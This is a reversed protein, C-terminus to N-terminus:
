QHCSNLGSTRISGRQYAKWIWIKQETSDARELEETRGRIGGRPRHELHWRHLLAPRPFAAPPPMERERSQAGHQPHWNYQFGSAAAHQKRRGSMPGDQPPNTQAEGGAAVVMPVSLTSNPWHTQITSWPPPPPRTPRHVSAQQNHSLYSAPSRRHYPDRRREGVDVHVTERYNTRLPCMAIGYGHRSMRGTTYILQEPDGASQVKRRM